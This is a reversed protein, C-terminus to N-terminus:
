PLFRNFIDASTSSPTQMGDHVPLVEPSDIHHSDSAVNAAFLANVLISRVPDKTKVNGRSGRRHAPGDTEEIAPLLPAHKIWAGHMEAAIFAACGVDIVSLRSLLFRSCM